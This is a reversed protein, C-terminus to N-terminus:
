KKIDKFFFKTNKSIILRKIKYEFFKYINVLSIKKLKNSSKHSSLWATRKILQEYIQFGDHFSNYSWPKGGGCFHSIILPELPITISVHYQNLKDINKKKRINAHSPMFNYRPNLYMVDNVLAGNLIDQDQYKIENGYKMFYDEVKDNFKNERMKELDFVMVGANFYYHEKPLGISLKYDDSFMELTPDLVVGASKGALNENWLSSIDGGVLADVDIYIVKKYDSLISTIKLRAYTALTIYEITIPFDLLDENEVEFYEIESKVYEKIMKKKDNSIGCDFILFKINDETNLEVSMMSIAMHHAYNDDSAYVVPIIKM